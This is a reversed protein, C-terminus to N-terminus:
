EAGDPLVGNVRNRGARKSAYLASDAAGILEERKVGDDPFSAVGFSLTVGLDAFETKELPVERVGRCLANARLIGEALTCDPMILCIEDGGYRCVVDSARVNAMLYAAINILLEDGYVHGVVDNIRKFGDVDAMIVSLPQQNRVARKIERDFTEEMYRRNFLGTLSDRMSLDRLKAEDQLLQNKQKEIENLQRNNIFAYSIGIAATFVIYALLSPWNIARLAPNALIMAIMGGLHVAAVVLTTRKSLLIACLQISLGVYVLPVFDGVAVTADLLISVWPGLIMCLATIWASGRYRGRLNLVLAAALLMLLGGLFHLYFALREGSDVFICLLITATILLLYVVQFILLRFAKKSDKETHKERFNRFFTTRAKM